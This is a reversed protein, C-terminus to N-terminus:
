YIFVYGSQLPISKQTDKSDVTEEVGITKNSNVFMGNVTFTKYDGCKVSSFKITSIDNEVDVMGITKCTTNDNEFTILVPPNNHNQTIDKKDYQVSTEVKANYISYKELPLNVNANNLTYSIDNLMIYGSQAAVTYKLSDRNQSSVAGFNKYADVFSGYLTFEENGCKATSLRIPSKNDGPLLTGIAHCEVNNFTFDILVPLSENNPNIYYEVGTILKAEILEKQMNLFPSKDSISNSEKHMAGFSSVNKNNLSDMAKTKASSEALEFFEAQSKKTNNVTAGFMLSTAVLSSLIIKNM